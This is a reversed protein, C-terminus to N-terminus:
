FKVERSLNQKWLKWVMGVNELKSFFNSLSVVLIAVVESCCGSKKQDWPHDNDVPKVTYSFYRGIFLSRWFIYISKEIVIKLGNKVSGQAASHLTTLLCRM